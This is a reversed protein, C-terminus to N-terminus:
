EKLTKSQIKKVINFINGQDSVFTGDVVNGMTLNNQMLIEDKKCSIVTAAAALIIIAKGFINM